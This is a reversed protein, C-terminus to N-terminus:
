DVEYVSVQGFEGKKSIGIASGSYIESIHPPLAGEELVLMRNAQSYYPVDSRLLLMRSYPVNLYQGGSSDLLSGDSFSFGGSSDLQRLVGGRAASFLAWTSGDRSTVNSSFRYASFTEGQTPLAGSDLYSPSLLFYSGSEPAAKGNALFSSFDKESGLAAKPLYFRAMEANGILYIRANQGKADSGLSSLVKSFGADSYAVYGVGSPSLQAFSSSFAVFLLSVLAFVAFFKANQFEYFYMILPFLLAVFFSIAAARVADGGSILAFLAFFGFALACALKAAKTIGPKSAAELGGASPVALAIAACAPCAASSLLGFLTFYANRPSSAPTLLFVAVSLMAFALMFSITGQSSQLNALSFSFSALSPSFFAGLLFAAIPLAFLLSHANSDQAGSESGRAFYRSLAFPLCLAVGALASSPFVFASAAAFPLSAGLALPNKNKSFLCICFLSVAFLPLAMQQAGYVGPLFQSSLLFPVLLAFFASVARRGGLARLSLYIFLASIALLVPSFELMFLVITDPSAPPLGFLPAVLNLKYAALQSHVPAAAGSLAGQVLIAESFNPLSARAPFHLLGLVTIFVIAAAAFDLKYESIKNFKGLM